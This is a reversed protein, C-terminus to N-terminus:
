LAVATDPIEALPARNEEERRTNETKIWELIKSLERVHEPVGPRKDRSRRAVAPPYDGFNAEWRRITQDHKGLLEALEITSILGRAKAAESSIPPLEALRQEQRAKRRTYEALQAHSWLPMGGVMFEPRDIAGRPNDEATIKERTLSDEITRQSLGTADALMGVTLHNAIDTINNSLDTATDAWRARSKTV